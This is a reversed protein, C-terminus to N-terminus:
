AECLGQFSPWQLPVGSVVPLIGSYCHNVSVIDLVPVLAFWVTHALHSVSHPWARVDGSIFWELGLFNRPKHVSPTWDQDSKNCKHVAQVSSAM